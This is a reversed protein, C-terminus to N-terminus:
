WWCSSSRSLERVVECLRYETWLTMGIKLLAAVIGVGIMYVRLEGLEDMAIVGM